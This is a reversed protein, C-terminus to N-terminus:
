LYRSNFTRRKKKKTKNGWFVCRSDWIALCCEAATGADAGPLAGAKGLDIVAGQPARKDSPLLAGQGPSDPEACGRNSGVGHRRAPHIFFFSQQSNKLTPVAERDSDGGGAAGQDQILHLPLAGTLQLHVGHSSVDEVPQFYFTLDKLCLQLLLLLIYTFLDRRQGDSLACSSQDAGDMLDM